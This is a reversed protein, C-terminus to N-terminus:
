SKKLAAKLLAIERDRERIARELKSIKSDQKRTAKVDIGQGVQIIKYLTTQSLGHKKCIEYNSLKATVDKLVSEVEEKTRKRMDRFGM